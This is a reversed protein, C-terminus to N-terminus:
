SAEALPFSVVATFLDALTEVHFDGGCAETFSSAISLGLGSGGDTRSADGRVFRATLDVGDPLEERSTNRLSAEARGAGTKLSLYVRSGALAYKLANDILNQFVRYLRRGDATIMVPAEPLDVRFTLGSRSIPGELDALTQRLLKAFDLRELHVPLQGSAAKSVEFVDQVMVALRHAKEDIIRAYDAAAGELPEQRLLEAYSLVSTLPTKLDHSVNSILEVKMRESRTQEALARHLGAQIDNLQEATQHLDADAPLNLPTELDGDRIATVQDALLGIDRALAANKRLIWCLVAAPLLLPLFTFWFLDDYASIGLIRTLVLLWFAAPLCILVLALRNWRSLSRQFPYKKARVSLAGLLSWRQDPQTNKRTIHRLWLAWVLALLAPANAPLLALLRLVDTLSSGMWGYYWLEFPSFGGGYPSLGSYGTFFVMSLVALAAALWWIEGPVRRTLAALKKEARRRDARLFHAAILCVAGAACLVARLLYFGQMERIRQYLGYFDNYSRSVGDSKLQLYPVPEQRIAMYVTVGAVDEGATFNEYGPVDWLSDETFFGDGYVDVPEGDKTITVTGNQFTLLFNYSEPVTWSSSLIMDAPANSYYSDEGPGRVRYLLNKDEAYSADPAEEEATTIDETATDTFGWEYWAGGDGSVVYTDGSATDWWELDSGTAMALFARLRQAM